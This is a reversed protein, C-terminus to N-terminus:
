TRNGWDREVKIPSPAFLPGAGDHLSASHRSQSSFIAPGPLYKDQRKSIGKNSYMNNVARASVCFLAGNM